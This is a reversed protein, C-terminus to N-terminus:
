TREFQCYYQKNYADNNLFSIYEEECYSKDQNFSYANVYCLATPLQINQMQSTVALLYIICIKKEDFINLYRFVFSYERSIIM